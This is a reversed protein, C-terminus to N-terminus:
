TFRCVNSEKSSEPLFVGSVPVGRRSALADGRVARCLSPSPSVGARAPYDRHARLRLRRVSAVM